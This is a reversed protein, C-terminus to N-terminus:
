AGRSQLIVSNRMKELAQAPDESVEYKGPLQPSESRYLGDSQRTTRFTYNELVKLDDGNM